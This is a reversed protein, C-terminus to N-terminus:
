VCECSMITGAGGNFHPTPATCSPLSTAAGCSAASDWCLDIPADVGGIGCYDQTHPSNFSHGLEHLVVMLDWVVSQPNSSQVCM